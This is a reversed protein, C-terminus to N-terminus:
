AQVQSIMELLQSAHYPKQLFRVNHNLEDPLEDPAPAEGSSIICPLDPSVERIRRLTEVGSLDDMLLDLVILDIRFHYQSFLALGSRGSAATLVDFGAKTLVKEVLDRIMEEDDIILVTMPNGRKRKRAQSTGVQEICTYFPVRQLTEAVTTMLMVSLRNVIMWKDCYPTLENPM